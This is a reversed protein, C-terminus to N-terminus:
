AMKSLEVGEEDVCTVDCDYRQYGLLNNVALIEHWENKLFDTKINFSM